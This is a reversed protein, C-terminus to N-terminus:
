GPRYLLVGLTLNDDHKDPYKEIMQRTYWQSPHEVGGGLLGELRDLLALSEAGLGRGIGDTYAAFLMQTGIAAEFWSDFERITRQQPGIANVLSTELNCQAAVQDTPRGQPTAEQTVRYVAGADGVSAMHLGEGDIWVLLLTTQVLRGRRLRYGWTADFEGKPRFVLPDETIEDALCGVASGASNFALRALDVAPMSERNAVLARTSTWCAVESAWEAYLSSSVGDAIAVVLQIERPGSARFPRWGLIFDQNKDKDPSVPGRDTYISVTVNEDVLRGDGVLLQGLETLQEHSERRCSTVGSAEPQERCEQPMEGSM